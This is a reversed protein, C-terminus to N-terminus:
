EALSTWPNNRMRFRWPKKSDPGAYGVGVRSSAIIERARTQPGRTEIWIRDGTLDTGNHGTTIGLAESLVGPGATLRREPSEMKRRKLMSAVGHTPEVARILVAHPIGKVNTIINFLSHIGYCLYVYAIGGQGYMVETRSTRRNAYAHSARDVPGAYAETEVIIGGTLPRRRGARVQPALPLRTFLHRGLLQKSIRFVDSGLYFTDALKTM